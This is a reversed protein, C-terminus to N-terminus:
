RVKVRCIIDKEPYKIELMSDNDSYIIGESADLDILKGQETGSSETENEMTEQTVTNTSYSRTTDTTGTINRVRLDIVGLVGERKTIEKQLDGVYLDDGMNHKEIDMYERVTDIVDAIVDSRNYSRDVFMDIEFKLNIIKGPKLEIYDNIMRYGSLYEKINSVVALPLNQSLKGNEDLGLLYLMIKNNEEKGGVRFPTGYKPPLMELRSLYDKITVCRNQAGNNYKILYKLEETTPMDKGSVSPTTNEVRITKIITSRQAASIDGNFDCNLMTINNIVGKALNSAKGGGVRYLVFLTSNPTPLYGLSTNNLSKSILYKSMGIETSYEVSDINPDMGGGFIIKLYGKDTYETIFKHKVRKWEGKTVYAKENNEGIIPFNEADKDVAEGWVDQQALSDVEFFRTITAETEDQCVNEKQSYFVSYRPYSQISTGDQVVISEINMVNTYPLVIEMFPKIDRSYLVQRYIKTEGATVVALKELKYQTIQGNTNRVPIITRDSQGNEDFQKSFDVDNLLEFVQSLGEVKTGRRLIPAYTYNPEDGNAPVQCSFKVEAMAGKPGPIKFGNSRAMAFVSSSEQASNIDTEQFVRDIHYSLEDAVAANLDILWSMVSADDVNVSLDPYYKKTFDILAQRYDTFTRSLYSINKEM